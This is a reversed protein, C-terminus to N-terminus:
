KIKSPLGVKKEKKNIMRSAGSLVMLDYIVIYKKVDNRLNGM